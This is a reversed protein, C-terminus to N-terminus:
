FEGEWSKLAKIETELWYLENEYSAILNITKDMESQLFIAEETGEKYGVFDEVLEALQNTHFHIRKQVRRLSTEKERLEKKMNGSLAFKM